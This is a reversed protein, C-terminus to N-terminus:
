PVRIHQGQFGVWVNPVWGCGGKAGPCPLTGPLCFNGQANAPRQALTGQHQPLCRQLPIGSGQVGKPLPFLSFMWFWNVSVNHRKSPALLAVCTKSPQGLKHTHRPCGLAGSPVQSAALSMALAGPLQPSCPSWGRYSFFIGLGLQPRTRAWRIDKWKLVFWPLM